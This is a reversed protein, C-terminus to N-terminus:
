ENFFDIIDNKAYELYEHGHVRSSSLLLLNRKMVRIKKIFISSGIDIKDLNDESSM